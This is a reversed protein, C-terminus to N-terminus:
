STMFACVGLMAGFSVISTIVAIHVAQAVSQGGIIDAVTILVDTGLITAIALIVFRRIM